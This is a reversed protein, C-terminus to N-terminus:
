CGLGAKLVLPAVAAKRGADSCIQGPRERKLSDPLALDEALAELSPAGGAGSRLGRSAQGRRIRKALGTVCVVGTGPRERYREFIPDADLRVGDVIARQCPSVVKMVQTAQSARSSLAETITKPM